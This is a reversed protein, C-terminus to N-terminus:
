GAQAIKLIYINVYCLLNCNKIDNPWAIQLYKDGKDWYTSLKLSTETNTNKLIYCSIIYKQPLMKSYLFDMCTECIVNSWQNIESNSYSKNRLVDDVISYIRQTCEKERSNQNSSVKPMKALM